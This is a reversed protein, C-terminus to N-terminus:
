KRSEPALLRSHPTTRVFKKVAAEIQDCVQSFALQIEADTGSTQGPAPFLWTQTQPTGRWQPPIQCAITNCVTIVYDFAPADIGTYTSWSKSALGDTRYGRRRLEKIAMPNVRGTPHSGASYAHFVGRGVTSLISEAMVSRGSNGSCIFLVNLHFTNVFTKPLFHQLQSHLSM